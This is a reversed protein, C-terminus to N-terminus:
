GRGSIFDKVAEEFDELSYCVAAFGGNSAVDSLYQKQALSLRGKKVKLEIAASHYKGGPSPFQFIWDSVGPRMGQRKLRAVKIAGNKLRQGRENAVHFYPKGKFEPLYALLRATSEQLNYEPGPHPTHRKYTKYKPKM